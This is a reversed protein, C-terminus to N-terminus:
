TIRFFRNLRQSIYKNISEKIKDKVNESKPTNRPTIDKHTNIRDFDNITNSIKMHVNMTYVIKKMMSKYLEILQEDNNAKIIDKSHKNLKKM